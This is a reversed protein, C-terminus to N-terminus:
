NCNFILHIITGCFPTVQRTGMSGLNNGWYANGTIINFTGKNKSCYDLIAKLGTGGPAEVKTSNGELAWSIAAESNNIKGHTFTEIPQLYGVGLDVLTFHLKLQKKFFQGCAFIPHETRAHLQVNAFVELFHDVMRSRDTPIIRMSYNGLLEKEIYNLFKQDEDNRFTTLEVCSRAKPLSVVEKLFGNHFLFKLEKEIYDFSTKDIAFTLRQLNHLRFLIASLLACMNGSIFELNTFNLQIEKDSHENCNQYLEILKRHGSPDTDIVGDGISITIEEM